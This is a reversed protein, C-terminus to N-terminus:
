PLDAVKKFTVKLGKEPVYQTLSGDDQVILKENVTSSKLFLYKDKGVTKVEIKDYRTEERESPDKTNLIVTKMPHIEARYKDYEKLAEVLEPPNDLVPGGALNHIVIKYVGEFGHTQGQQLNCATVGFGILITTVAIIIKKKM